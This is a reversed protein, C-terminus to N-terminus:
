VLWNVVQALQEKEMLAPAHGTDAFEILQANEKSNLLKLANGHPFVDSREGRLLLLSKCHVGPWLPSFDIDEATEGKFVLLSETVGLDYDLVLVGEDNMHVSHRTIYDWNEEGKIGFNALKTKLHAKAQEFDNFSPYIRVYKAIRALSEKPIFTGIDNLILKNFLNPNGQALYLALIGGMSTGLYDVSVLGLSDLLALTALRYNEYTYMKHDPLYESRGRGPMDIAIVRFGHHESLEKAIYDFDRCNRSLGHVCVLVRDSNGWDTYHLRYLKKDDLAVSIEKHQMM